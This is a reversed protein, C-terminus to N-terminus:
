FFFSSNFVLSTKNSDSNFWNFFELFELELENDFLEL